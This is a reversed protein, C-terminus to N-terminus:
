TERRETTVGPDTDRASLLLDTELYVTLTRPRDATPTSIHFYFGYGAFIFVGESHDSEEDFHSYLTLRWLLRGRLQADLERVAPTMLVRGGKFRMRLEDNAQRDEELTM